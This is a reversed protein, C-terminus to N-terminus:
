QGWKGTWLSPLLQWHWPEKAFGAGAYLGYKAGNKYLWQQQAKTLKLDAALGLGHISKGPTAALNPKRRKVDVQAAYSRFGDTITFTGLGAAKMAANAKSLADWMPTQLGYPAAGRLHDLGTRGKYGYASIGGGKVNVPAGQDLVPAPTAAIQSQVAEQAKKQRLMDQSARVWTDSTGLGLQPLTYVPEPAYQEPTYQPYQSQRLMETISDLSLAGSDDYDDWRPVDFPGPTSFKPQPSPAAKPPSYISGEGILAM